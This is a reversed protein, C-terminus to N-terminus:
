LRATADNRKKQCDIQHDHPRYPASPSIEKCINRAIPPLISFPLLDLPSQNNEHVLHHQVLALILQVREPSKWLPDNLKILRNETAM